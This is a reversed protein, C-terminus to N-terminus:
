PSLSLPVLRVLRLEENSNRNSPTNYDMKSLEQDWERSENKHRCHGQKLRRPDNFHNLTSTITALRMYEIRRM